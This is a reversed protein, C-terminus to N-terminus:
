VGFNLMIAASDGNAGYVDFSIRLGDTEWDFVFNSVQITRGIPDALLAETITREFMSKVAERDPEAFAEAMEIGANDSYSIHAKRQTLATKACWLKWAEYGNCYEIQGISNRVFDGKRLDWKPSKNYVANLKIDEALTAPVDFVPFLIGQEM